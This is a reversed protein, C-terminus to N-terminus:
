ACAANGLSLVRSSSQIFADRRRGEGVDREGCRLEIIVSTVTAGSINEAVRPVVQSQCEGM